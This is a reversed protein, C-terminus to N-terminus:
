NLRVANRNEEQVRMDENHSRRSGRLVTQQRKAVEKATTGAATFGGSVAGRETRRGRKALWEYTQAGCRGGQVPLRCRGKAPDAVPDGCHRTPNGMLYGARSGRAPPLIAARSSVFGPIRDPDPVQNTLQERTEIL